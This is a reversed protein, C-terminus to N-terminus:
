WTEGWGCRRGGEQYQWGAGGTKHEFDPIRNTSVLPKVVKVTLM